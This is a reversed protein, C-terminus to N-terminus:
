PVPCGVLECACAAPWVLTALVSGSEPSATLPSWHFSATSLILGSGFIDFVLGKWDGYKVTVEWVCGLGGM